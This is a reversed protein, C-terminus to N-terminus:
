KKRKKKSCKEHNERGEGDDERKDGGETVLGNDFHQSRVFLYYCSIANTSM